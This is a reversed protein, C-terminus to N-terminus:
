DKEYETTTCYSRIRELIIVLEKCNYLKITRLLPIAQPNSQPVFFSTFKAVNKVYCNKRWLRIGANRLLKEVNEICGKSLKTMIMFVKKAIIVDHYISKQFFALHNASSELTSAELGFWQAIIYRIAWHALCTIISLTYKKFAIFDMIKPVLFEPLLTWHLYVLM